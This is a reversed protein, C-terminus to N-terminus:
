SYNTQDKFHSMANQLRFFFDAYQAITLRPKILAFLNLPSRRLTAQGETLLVQVPTENTGKIVTLNQLFMMANNILDESQM